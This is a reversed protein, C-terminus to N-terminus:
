KIEDLLKRCNAKQKESLDEKGHSGVHTYIHFPIVKATKLNVLALCLVRYGDSKSSKRVVDRFRVKVIELNEKATVIAKNEQLLYEVPLNMLMRSYQKDIRQNKLLKLDDRLDFGFGSFFELLTLNAEQLLDTVEVSEIGMLGGMYGIQYPINIM